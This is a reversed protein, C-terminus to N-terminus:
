WFKTQLMLILSIGAAFGSIFLNRERVIIRIFLNIVFLLLFLLAIIMIQGIELGVNFAFLAGIIDASSGLLARLFNSFGVGHILGFSLALLYNGWRHKISLSQSETPARLNNLATFFITVPILFEIVPTPFAVIQLTALALSLSHGLTFATIMVLLDKWHSLSYPACLVLVFVLHDYAELNAIHHFGLQLYSWFNELM